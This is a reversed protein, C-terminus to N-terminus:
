KSILLEELSHIFTVNKDDIQYQYSDVDNIVMYISSNIVKSISKYGVLTNEIGIYYACNMGYREKAITYPEHHPKPHTYDERTVWNKIKQLLPLKKKFWEVNEKSTNTVICHPINYKIIYELLKDAGNIFTLDYLSSRLAKNKEYRIKHIDINCIPYIGYQQLNFYDTHTFDYDYLKYAHVYMTYHLSESDILTGDLDILILTNKNIISTM